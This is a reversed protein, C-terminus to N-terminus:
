WRSFRGVGQGGRARHGRAGVAAEAVRGWGRVWGAVGRVRSRLRREGAGWGISLLGTRSKTRTAAPWAFCLGVRRYRPRAAVNFLKLVLTGIQVTALETGALAIRRLAQVLVYAAPSLLLRFQNALLRHCSTRDAFLDRTRPGCLPVSRLTAHFYAQPAAEFEVPLPIDDSRPRNTTGHRVQVLRRRRSSRDISEMRGNGAECPASM